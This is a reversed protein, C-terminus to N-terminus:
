NNGSTEQDTGDAGEEEPQTEPMTEASNEGNLCVGQVVFRTADNGTCTSLIVARESGDFSFEGTPIESRGAMTELYSVFEQGRQQFMTYTDSEAGTEYAAFIQYKYNKEPTCIWFYLSKEYVESERFKKLTGFMSGDKMNHGYLISNCDSFDSQNECDLFISGSFNYTEETTRHLYYENDESQMIPYSIDLAEVVLWGVVDENIKKLAEFDIVPGTDEPASEATEEHEAEPQKSLVVSEELQKYEDEAQKYELLTSALQYISFGFMGLLVLVLIWWLIRGAASAKKKKGAM